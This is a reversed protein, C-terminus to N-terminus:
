TIECVGGACALQATLNTNNRDEIISSLDVSTLHSSLEKFVKKTCSEFPAQVYSGGDFPLLSVGRFSNRNEWLHEFLDEVEEPKYNITVSVNHTDIGSVHGPVIWNDYYFCTRDLLQKATTNQRLIAGKPSEQPITVVVGSQSFKDDEVLYPITNKLYIALPDDKSMRVRRLYYKDFRDHIGSSSGLVCSASGEPKVCTLRAAENIGIKYAISKNVARVTRAALRLDQATLQSADAVGTFSCGLLAEKETTQRWKQDIYPFDTYSAQLTGILASASVREILKQPTINTLSTTTLNCFQQSNLGIENCPNSLFNIDETIVFGPEGSNSKICADYVARFEEKTLKDRLFVASNNARARYPHKEWWPGQKCELMLKDDKDFLSILAARRIGGALVCDALICVIDHVELSTLKRGIADKLKQEVHELMEKLPQPGPAKAGTTSLYSDKDRVGSFDFNPRFSKYMYASFLQNVAEAWGEISDHVRYYNEETPPHITPLKSIHARQVSFGVGTGCLLIYLIEAFVRVSDINTYSCNFMRINNREIASGGFQLSRMSPMVEFNDVLKYANLIEKELKPFRGLHMEKNRLVTEAFTERRNKDDLYKAYSRFAVIDSLLKNSKNL